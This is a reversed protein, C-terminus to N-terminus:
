HAATELEHVKQIYHEAVGEWYQCHAEDNDKYHVAIQNLAEELLNAQLRDGAGRLMGPVIHHVAHEVNAAIQWTRKKYRSHLMAKVRDLVYELTKQCNDIYLLVPDDENPFPTNTVM